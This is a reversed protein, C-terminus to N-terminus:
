LRSVDFHNALSSVVLFSVGFRSVDVHVSVALVVLFVSCLDLFTLDFPLQCSLLSPTSSSRAAHEGASANQSM